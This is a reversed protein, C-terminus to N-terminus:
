IIQLSDQNFVNSENFQFFSFLSEHESPEKLTVVKKQEQIPYATSEYVMRDYEFQM